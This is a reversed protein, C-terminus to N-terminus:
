KRCREKFERVEWNKSPYATILVVNEKRRAYVLTVFEHASKRYVCLNKNEADEFRVGKAFMTPIEEALIGREVLRIRAHKTLFIEM